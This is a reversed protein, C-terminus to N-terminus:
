AQESSPLKRETTGYQVSIRMESGGFFPTKHGHKSQLLDWIPARRYFEAISYNMFEMAARSTQHQLARRRGWEQWNKHRKM